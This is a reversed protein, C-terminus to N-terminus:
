YSPQFTKREQKLKVNLWSWEGGGVRSCRLATFCFGSRLNFTPLVPKTVALWWARYRSVQLLAVDEHGTERVGKYCYKTTQLWLV